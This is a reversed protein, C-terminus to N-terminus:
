NLSSSLLPGSLLKPGDFSMVHAIIINYQMRAMVRQIICDRLTIIIFLSIKFVFDM